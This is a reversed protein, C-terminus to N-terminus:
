YFLGPLYTALRPFILLLVVTLVMCLFFPAIGKFTEQMPVDQAVSCIAFVNVGIPPTIQGMEMCIVCIVGFWVPDFGIATVTPFITPLVLLIMPIVNLVCGMLIFMLLITGMIVYPSVQLGIAFNAIIMPLRTAALFFGMVGVGILIIFLKATIEVTDYASKVLLHWTLRRRAVALAFAGVCGISGGEVPSFFGGLIGGLILVFLFLMGFVGKLSVLKEKLTSSQGPPAMEPHIKAWIWITVAFFTTLLLGPVIGAIFLQGISVETVIAYFIFGVSPPILIGLTGGAALCGTGLRMNYNRKRMEPLSITGMTIATALSDGCVAAFGACGAVASIAVGGRLRGLWKSATEFLDRSIGSCFALQGMLIFLPGVTFFYNAGQAYANLGLNRLAPLSDNYALVLGLFGAIGMAFGIPMGAFILLFLLLMGAIGMADPSWKAMQGSFPAYFVAVTLIIGAVVSALRKRAISKLLFRYFDKTAAFIELMTGIAALLYFVGLPLRLSSSLRGLKLEDVGIAALQWTMLVFLVVSLLSTVSNMVPQLSSPIRETILDIRIHGATIHTYALSYYIVLLLFYEEIEVIGTLSFEFVTRMVVDVFVPIPMICVLVAAVNFFLKTTRAYLGALPIKQVVQIEESTPAEM